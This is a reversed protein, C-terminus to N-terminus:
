GQPFDSRNSERSTGWPLSQYNGYNNRRAKVTFNDQLLVYYKTSPSVTSIKTVVCEDKVRESGVKCRQVITAGIEEATKATSHFKSM